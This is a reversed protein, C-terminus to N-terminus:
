AERFDRSKTLWATSFALVAIVELWFFGKNKTLVNNLWQYSNEALTMYLLLVLCVAIIGGCAYYITNRRSVTLVKGGDERAGFSIVLKGRPFFFLCLICISVFFLGAPIFHLLNASSSTESFQLVVQGHWTMGGSSCESIVEKSVIGFCTQPQVPDVPFLAVRIAGIGAVRAWNRDWLKRFAQSVQGDKFEQKNFDKYTFM